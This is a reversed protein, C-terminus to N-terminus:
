GMESLWQLILKRSWKGPRTTIVFERHVKFDQDNVPVAAQLQKTLFTRQQALSRIGERSFAQKAQDPTLDELPIVRTNQGDAELVEVGNEIVLKQESITLAMLRRGGASTNLVLRADLLGRGARELRRILERSVGLEVLEAALAPRSELAGAFDRALRIVDSLLEKIRKAWDHASTSTVQSNM